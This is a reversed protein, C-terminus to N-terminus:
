NKRHWYYRLILENQWSDGKSMVLGREKARQLSGYKSNIDRSAHNMTCDHSNDTDLSWRTVIRWLSAAKPVACVHTENVSIAVHRTLTLRWVTLTLLVKQLSCLVDCLRRFTCVAKLHCSCAGTRATGNDNDTQVKFQGGSQQLLM